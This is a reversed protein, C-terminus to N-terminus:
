TTFKLEYWYFLNVGPFFTSLKVTQNKLKEKWGKQREIMGLYGESKSLGDIGCHAHAKRVIKFNKM